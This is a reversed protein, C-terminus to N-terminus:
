HSSNLRTSKRDEGSKDALSVVEDVNRMAEDWRNLRLLLKTKTLQTHRFVYRARFDAPPRAREIEGLLIEADQLRGEALYIQALTERVAASHESGPVVLSIATQLHEAAEAFKGRQFFL